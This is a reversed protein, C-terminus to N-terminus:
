GRRERLVEQLLHAAVFLIGLWFTSSALWGVFAVTHVGGDHPALVTTLLSVALLAAGPAIFNTTV